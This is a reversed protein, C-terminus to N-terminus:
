RNTQMESQVDKVGEIRARHRDRREEADEAAEATFESAFM